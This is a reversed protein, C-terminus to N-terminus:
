DPKKENKDPLFQKFYNVKSMNSETDEPETMGGTVEEDWATTEVMLNNACRSCRLILVQM